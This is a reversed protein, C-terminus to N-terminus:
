AKHACRGIRAGLLPAVYMSCEAITEGSTKWCTRRIAQVPLRWPKYVTYIFYLLMPTCNVKNIHFHPINQFMHYKSINIGPYYMSSTTPIHTAMVALLTPQLKEPAPFANLM